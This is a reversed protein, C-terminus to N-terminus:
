HHVSERQQYQDFKYHDLVFLEELWRVFTTSIFLSYKDM